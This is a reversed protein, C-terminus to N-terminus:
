WNMYWNISWNILLHINIWRILFLCPGDGDGRSIHGDIPDDVEINIYWDTLADQNRSYYQHTGGDTENTQDILSQEILQYTFKSTHYKFYVRGTGTLTSTHGDIPSKADGNTSQETLWCILFNSIIEGILAPRNFHMETERSSREFIFWAILM